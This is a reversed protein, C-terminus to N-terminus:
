YKTFRLSTLIRFCLFLLLYLILVYVQYILLHQPLQEVDILDTAM